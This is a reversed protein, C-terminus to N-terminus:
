AIGSGAPWNSLVGRVYMGVSEASSGFINMGMLPSLDTVETRELMVTQLPMGRLPSIDKVGTGDLRVERLPAGALPTIDVINSCGQAIISELPMGALGSLDDVPTGTLDLSAVPMGKLASLDRIGTEYFSLSWLQNTAVYARRYPVGKERLATEAPGDYMKWFSEPWGLIDANFRELTGMTRLVEVGHTVREPSFIIRELKMGSLATIDTVSTGRINLSTLEMGVLPTLDTVGICGEMSLGTLDMGRLPTLDTVNTCGDLELYAIPLDKLVSLDSIGSKSLNLWDGDGRQKRFWASPNDAQALQHLFADPNWTQRALCQTNIALLCLGVMLISRRNVWVTRQRRVVGSYAKTDILDCFAYVRSELSKM